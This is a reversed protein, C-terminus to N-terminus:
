LLPLQNNKYKTSLCEGHKSLAIKKIYEFTHKVNGACHPCWTGCNKVRRLPACWTHNKSCRWLLPTKNDKYETSLCIGGHSEAIICADNLSLKKM